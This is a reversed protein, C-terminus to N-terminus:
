LYHPKLSQDIAIRIANLMDEDNPEERGNEAASISAEDHIDVDGVRDIGTDLVLVLLRETDTWQKM